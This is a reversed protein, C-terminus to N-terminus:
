RLPPLVLLSFERIGEEILQPPIDYTSVAFLKDDGPGGFIATSRELFAPDHRATYYVGDFGLGYLITALQQSPFYDTGASMDGAIGYRGLVGRDTLDALNLPRSL